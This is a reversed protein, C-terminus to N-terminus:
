KITVDRDLLDRIDHLYKGAEVQNRCILLLLAVLSVGCVVCFVYFVIM